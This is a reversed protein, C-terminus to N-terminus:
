IEKDGREMNTAPLIAEELFSRGLILLFMQVYGMGKLIEKKRTKIKQMTKWSIRVRGTVCEQVIGSKNYM